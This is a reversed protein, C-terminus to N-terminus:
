AARQFFAQAARAPYVLNRAGRGLEVGRSFERGSAFPGPKTPQYSLQYLLARKLCQDLTRTGALGGFKWLQHSVNVYKMTSRASMVYTRRGVQGASQFFMTTTLRVRRFAQTTFQCQQRRHFQRTQIFCARQFSLHFAFLVRLKRKPEHLLATM